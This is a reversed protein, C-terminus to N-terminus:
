ETSLWPRTGERRRRTPLDLTQESEDTLHTGPDFRCILPLDGVKLSKFVCCVKTQRHYASDSCLLYGLHSLSWSDRQVGLGFQSQAATVHTNSQKTHTHTAKNQQGSIPSITTGTDNRLNPSRPHGSEAGEVKVVDSAIGSGCSSRQCGPTQARAAGDHQRIWLENPRM